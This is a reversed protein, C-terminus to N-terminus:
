WKKIFCNDRSTLIEAVTDIKFLGFDFDQLAQSHPRIEKKRSLHAGYGPAACIGGFGLWPREALPGYGDSIAKCNESQLFQYTRECTLTAPMWAYIDAAHRINREDMRFLWIPLNRKRSGENTNNVLLIQPKSPTLENARTAKTKKLIENM